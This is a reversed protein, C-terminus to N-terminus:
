EHKMDKIEDSNARERQLPSNEEIINPSNEKKNWKTRKMQRTDDIWKQKFVKLYNM